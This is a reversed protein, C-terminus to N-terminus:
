LHENMMVYAAGETYDSANEKDPDGAAYDVDGDGDIDAGLPALGYGFKGNMADATGGAYGGYSDGSLYELPSGATGCCRESDIWALAGLSYTPMGTFMDDIGDGSYDGGRRLTAIDDSEWTYSVLPSGQDVTGARLYAGGPFAELTGTSSYM